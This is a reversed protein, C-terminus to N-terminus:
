PHQGRTNFAILRAKLDAVTARSSPLSAINDTEMDYSQPVPADSHNYLEEGYVATWDALAKPCTSNSCKNFGVWLTYRYTDTRMTYGMKNPCGDLCFGEACGKQTKPNDRCSLDVKTAPHEPRPFQSYSVNFAADADPHRLLTSLSRGETCFGTARSADANAPCTPVTIGAEELITPMIDIAEVLAASRGVCSGGSCGIMMPIKTAHEYNTMKEWLDNDGLHRTPPHTPPYACTHTAGPWGSCAPM